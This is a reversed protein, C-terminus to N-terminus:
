TAAFLREVYSTAPSAALQAVTGRQTARGAELVIVDVAEGVGHLNRYIQAMLGLRNAGAKVVLLDMDSHRGMGGRAASGFLIIQEPRAVAVIRRVIEELTAPNVTRQTTVVNQAM